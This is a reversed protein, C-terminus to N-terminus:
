AAIQTYLTSNIHFYNRIITRAGLLYLLHKVFANWRHPQPTKFFKVPADIYDVGIERFKEKILADDACSPGAVVINCDYNEKLEKILQFMSRNAGAMVTVHTVFLIKM